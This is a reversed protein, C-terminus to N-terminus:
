SASKGGRIVYAALWDLIDSSEFFPVGDIVLCPVQTRGTLHMLAARAEKSNRTDAMEMSVSYNKLFAFVRICYPCADYKYLTLIRAEDPSPIEGPSAYTEPDSKQKWWV